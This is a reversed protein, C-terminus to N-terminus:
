ATSDQLPPPQEPVPVEQSTVTFASVVTLTVNALGVRVIEGAGALPETTPVPM